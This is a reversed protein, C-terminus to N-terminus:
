WIFKKYYMPASPTALNIRITKKNHFYKSSLALIKDIRPCYLLLLDIESSLYPKTCSGRNKRPRTINLELGVLGKGRDPVHLRNLYKVQTRYLKNNIDLIMDYRSDEVFPISVIINRRAAELQIKSVAIQGKFSARTNM